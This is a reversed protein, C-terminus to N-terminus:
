ASAEGVAQRLKETLFDDHQMLHNYVKMVMTADKHGMLLAVTLPDVGRLLADTCWTHRLVYPFAKVGTREHLLRFRGNMTAATWKGGRNNRFIVGEPHKLALRMVIEQARDSLRIVRGCLKKTVGVKPFSIRRRQKDWYRAEIAKLEQPRCGTERMFWIADHLSDTPKIARELTEWDAPKLYVDRAEAQPIEMGKIPNKDILGQRSAWNFARLLVRCACNQYSNSTGKYEATLWRTVHIPRLQAVTMRPGIQRSFSKLHFVYLAHTSAARNDHLWTLFQDLLLVVTAKDDLPQRGAMLKHYEQWATEEETGLRRPRGDLNVYWARHSKKFYPKPQRM